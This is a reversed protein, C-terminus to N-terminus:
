VEVEFGLDVDQASHGGRIGWNERPVEVLAIKIEARPVGLGLGELNDCLLAYLRRKAADSRGAFLVIEVRTYKESRGPPVIRHSGPIEYLVVDRDWAPLKLAQSLAHQVAEIMAQQRDGLWGEGTEIRTMPM